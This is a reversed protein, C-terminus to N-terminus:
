LRDFLPQLGDRIADVTGAPLKGLRDALETKDVTLV